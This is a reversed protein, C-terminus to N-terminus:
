MKMSTKQQEDENKEKKLRADTNSLMAVAYPMM